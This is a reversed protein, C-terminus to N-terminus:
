FFRPSRLLVTVKPLIDYKLMIEHTSLNLNKNRSSSFGYSYGLSLNKNITFGTLFSFSGALPGEPILNNMSSRMQAGIWFTEKYILLSSLDYVLSSGKTYKLLVSPKIMWQDSTSILAGTIFYYHKRSDIEKHELIRPIAIGAYIKQTYYYLGFGINPFFDNQDDEIFASDFPNNTQILDRNLNYNFGGFKLGLSLFNENRNLKLHYAFDIDVSTSRVPGINDNLVSFGIGLNKSILPMNLSLTQTKPAGEFGAWQSRHVTTLSTYNKSGVYAPNVSQHNFMYHNFSAQQQSFLPTFGIILLLYIIKINIRKKVM